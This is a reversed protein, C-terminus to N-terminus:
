VIEKYFGYFWDFAMLIEWYTSSDIGSYKQIEIDLSEFNNINYATKFLNIREVIGSIATIQEVSYNTRSFHFWVSRIQLFSDSNLKNIVTTWSKDEKVLYMFGNKSYTVNAVGNQMLMLPTLYSDGRAQNCCCVGEKEIGSVGKCSALLNSHAISHPMKAMATIEEKSGISPFDECLSVHDQIAPAANAYTKFDEHGEIGKTSRPVVHEINLSSTDIKRMCYCCRGQQEDLIVPLWKDRFVTKKYEDYLANANAIDPYMRGEEENWCSQLFHVNISHGQDHLKYKDIYQM